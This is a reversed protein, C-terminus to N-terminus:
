ERWGGWESPMRWWRQRRRASVSEAIEVRGMKEAFAVSVAKDLM